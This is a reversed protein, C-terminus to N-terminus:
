LGSQPCRDLGLKAGYSLHIRQAQADKSKTRTQGKGKEEFIRWIKQELFIETDAQGTATNSYEISIEANSPLTM